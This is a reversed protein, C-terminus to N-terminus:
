VSPQPEKVNQQLSLSDFPVPIEDFCFNVLLEGCIEKLKVSVPQSIFGHVHFCGAFSYRFV